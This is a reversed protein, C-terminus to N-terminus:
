QFWYQSNKNWSRRRCCTWKVSSFLKQM